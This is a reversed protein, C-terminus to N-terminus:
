CTLELMFNSSNNRLFLRQTYLIVIHSVLAAKIEGSTTGLQFGRIFTMVRNKEDPDLKESLIKDFQNLIEPTGDSPEGEEGFFHEVDNVHVISTNAKLGNILVHDVQINIM